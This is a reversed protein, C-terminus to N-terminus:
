FANIINIIMLVEVHDVIKGGSLFGRLCFFIGAFIYWYLTSNFKRFTFLFM